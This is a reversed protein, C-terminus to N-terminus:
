KEALAAPSGAPLSRHLGDPDVSRRSHLRAAGPVDHLRKQFSQLVSAPFGLDDVYPLEIQLGADAAEVAPYASGTHADMPIAHATRQFSIVLGIQDYIAGREIVERHAPQQLGEDVARRERADLGPQHILSGDGTVGLPEILRFLHEEDRRAAKRFEVMEIRQDIRELEHRLHCSQVIQAFDQAGCGIRETSRRHLMKKAIVIGHDTLSTLLDPTLAAEGIRQLGLQVTVQEGTSDLSEALIGIGIPGLHHIAIMDRLSVTVGWWQQGVLQIAVQVALLGLKAGPHLLLGLQIILRQQADHRGHIVREGDRIQADRDLELEQGGLSKSGPGASHYRDM